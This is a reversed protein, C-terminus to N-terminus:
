GGVDFRLMQFFSPLSFLLVEFGPASIKFYLVFAWVRRLFFFLTEKM